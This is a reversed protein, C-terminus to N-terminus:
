FFAQWDCIRAPMYKCVHLLLDKSTRVYVKLRYYSKLELLRLFEEEDHITLGRSKVQQLQGASSLAPKIYPVKSMPRSIFLEGQARQDLPFRHLCTAAFMCLQIRCICIESM